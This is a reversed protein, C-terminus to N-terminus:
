IQQSSQTEELIKQTINKLDTLNDTVVKWVRDLSVQSYEQILIDRM